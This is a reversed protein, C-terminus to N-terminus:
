NESHIYTSKESGEVDAQTRQAAQMGVERGRDLAHTSIPHRRLSVYKFKVVIIPNLM